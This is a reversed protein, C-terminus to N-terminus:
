ADPRVERVWGSGQERTSGPGPLIAPNPVSLTAQFSQKGSIVSSSPAFFCLWQASLCGLM